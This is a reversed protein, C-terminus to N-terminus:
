TKPTRVAAPIVEKTHYNHFCMGKCLPALCEKCWYSSRKKTCQRCRMQRKTLRSGEKLPIPQYFSLHGDPSTFRTGEDFKVKRLHARSQTPTHLNKTPSMTATKNRCGMIEWENALALAVSKRFTFLTYELPLLAKERSTKYLLWSNILTAELIFWFIPHWFKRTRLELQVYSRYQDFMDVAGMYLNYQHVAPPRPIEKQTKEGKETFWHKVSSSENGPESIPLYCNTVVHVARKAFWALYCLNGYVAWRTTGPNKKLQAEEKKTMTVEKCLGSRNVRVTGCSWILMNALDNVLPISTFWNDMHVIHNKGSLPSLLTRVLLHTVSVEEKRDVETENKGVYVCANWLYGTLSCCVCFIKIGWRVPKSKIYQKFSCRGKFRKIAEDIGVQQAPWFSMKCRNMFDDWLEKFKHTKDDKNREDDAPRSIKFFRKIQMWRYQGSFWHKIRSREYDDVWFLNLSQTVALCWWIVSAVWAKLEAACIPNWRRSGHNPEKKMEMDAKENTYKAWRDWYFIPIFLCFYEFPTASGVNLTHNPGSTGRFTTDHKDPLQNMKWLNPDFHSIDKGEVDLVQVDDDLLDADEEMIEGENDSAEDSSGGVLTADEMPNKRKGQLSAGLITRKRFSISSKPKENEKLAAPKKHLDEENIKEHNEDSSETDTSLLDIDTEATKSKCAEGLM